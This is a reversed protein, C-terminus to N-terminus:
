RQQIDYQRQSPLQAAATDTAYGGTYRRQQQIPYHPSQAARYGRVTTYDRPSSPHLGTSAYRTRDIDRERERESYRVSDFSGSYQMHHAHQFPLRTDYETHPHPPYHPNPPHPPEHRYSPPVPPYSPYSPYSVPPIPDSTSQTHLTPSDRQYELSQEKTDRQSAEIISHIDSQKPILEYKISKRQIYVDYNVTCKRYTRILQMLERDQACVTRIENIRSYSTYHCQTCLCTGLIHGNFQNNTYLLYYSMTRRIYKVSTHSLAKYIHQSYLGRYLLIYEDLFAEININIGDQKPQYEDIHLEPSIPNPNPSPKHYICYDGINKINALEPVRTFAYHDSHAAASTFANFYKRIVTNFHHLSKTFILVFCLKTTTTSKIKIDSSYIGTEINNNNYADTKDHWMSCHPYVTLICIPYTMLYYNLKYTPILGLGCPLNMWYSALGKAIIDDYYNTIWAIPIRDGIKSILAAM